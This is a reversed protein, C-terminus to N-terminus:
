ARAPLEGRKRKVASAILTQDAAPSALLAKVASDQCPRADDRGHETMGSLKRVKSLRGGLENASLLIGLHEREVGWFLM